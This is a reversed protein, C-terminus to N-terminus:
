CTTATPKWRSREFARADALVELGFGAIAPIGDGGTLLSVRFSGTSRNCCRSKSM